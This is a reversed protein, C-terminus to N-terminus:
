YGSREAVVTGDVVVRFQQPRFGAFMRPRQKEIVLEHGHISKRWRRTLEFSFHTGVDLPDELTLPHGDVVLTTRGTFWNRTFEAKRGSIEFDLKM